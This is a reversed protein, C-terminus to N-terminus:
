PKLFKSLKKELLLPHRLECQWVTIARWGLKALDALNRQDNEINRAIKPIWFCGNVFIAKQRGPFVIDPTGPLDRRHLRYRYGNRTLLFRVAKEPATSKSPVARMIRSRVAKSVRDTM